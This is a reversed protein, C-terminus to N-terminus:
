YLGRTYSDLEINNILNNDKFVKLTKTESDCLYILGNDFKPTHPQSLQEILIDGNLVDILFGKEYTKGKYNYHEKYICFASVYLRGNIVELCNLHWADGSGQFKYKKDIKYNNDLKIIENTSTSVIFLSNNFYYLDHIDKIDRHIISFKEEDKSYVVIESFNQHQIARYFNNNGYCIGTTGLRDIVIQKGNKIHILGGNNPCSVILNIKNLEFM